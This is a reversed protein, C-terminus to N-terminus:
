SNLLVSQQTYEGEKRGAVKDTAVLKACIDDKSIRPPPYHDSIQSDYSQDSCFDPAMHSCLIPRTVSTLVCGTDVPPLASLLPLFSSLKWDVGCGSAGRASNRLAM